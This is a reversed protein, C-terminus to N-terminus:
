DAHRLSIHPILLNTGRAPCVVTAPLTVMVVNALQPCARVLRHQIVFSGCHFTATKFAPTLWIELSMVEFSDWGLHRSLVTCHIRSQFYGDRAFPPQLPLRAFVPACLSTYPPLHDVQCQWLLFKNIMHTTLPILLQM